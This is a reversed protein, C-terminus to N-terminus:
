QRHKHEADCGILLAWAESVRHNNAIQCLRRPKSQSAQQQMREGVVERGRFTQGGDRVLGGEGWKGERYPVPHYREGGSGGLDDEGTTDM